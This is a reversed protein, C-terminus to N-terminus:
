TPQISLHAALRTGSIHWTDKQLQWLILRKGHFTAEMSFSGDSRTVKGIDAFELFACSKLPRPVLIRMQESM